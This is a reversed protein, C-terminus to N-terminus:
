AADETMDAEYFSISHCFRGILLRFSSNAANLNMVAEPWIVINVLRRM